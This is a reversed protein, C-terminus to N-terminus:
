CPVIKSPVADLVAVSILLVVIRVLVLALLLMSVM